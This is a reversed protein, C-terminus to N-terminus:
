NSPAWSVGRNTLFIRKSQVFRPTQRLMGTGTDETVALASNPRTENLEGAIATNSSGDSGTIV